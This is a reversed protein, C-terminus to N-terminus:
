SNRNERLVRLENELTAVRQELNYNNLQLRESFMQALKSRILPEGIFSIFKELYERDNVIKQKDGQLIEIVDNIKQKAFEGILGGELFFSDTFLTHINAAFTQKRDELSDAISISNNDVKLFVLNSNPLDSVAIPNNSTIVIQINRRRSHETKAFIVPLFKLLNSLFKKQWAPHLYLDGEDILVIINEKLNSNVARVIKDSLSYFRSYMSLIAKQGSSLHRWTFNLYPRLLFTKIYLDYFGKFNEKDKIDLFFMRGQEDAVQNKHIYDGIERCFNIIADGVSILSIDKSSQQKLLEILGICFDKENYEEIPKNIYFEDVWSIINKYNIYNFLDRREYLFNLLCTAILRYEARLKWDKTRNIGAQLSASVKEIVEDRDQDLNDDTRLDSSKFAYLLDQKSSVVLKDPLDFPIVSTDQFSNVFDVQRNIEEFFFQEVEKSIDNRGILKNEVNRIVDNRILFNTSINRSGELEDEFLGDFVNSFYVVDIFNAEKITPQETIDLNPIKKGRYRKLTNTLKIAKFGYEEFNEKSIKYKDFYYIVKENQDNILALIVPHQIGNYGRTIATRFLRLISSKGAGNQGVIGTVNVVKAVDNSKNLEFFDSIYYPNKKIVFKEEILNYHFLYEGGFNLQIDEKFIENQQSYFYLIEM